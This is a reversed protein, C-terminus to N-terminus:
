KSHILDFLRLLESVTTTAPKAAAVNFNVEPDFFIEARRALGVRPQDARVIAIQQDLQLGGSNGDARIGANGAYIAAMDFIYESVSDLQYRPLLSQMVSGIM